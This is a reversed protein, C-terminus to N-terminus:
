KSLSVENLVFDAHDRLSRPVTMAPELTRGHCSVGLDELMLQQDGMTYDLTPSAVPSSVEKCYTSM